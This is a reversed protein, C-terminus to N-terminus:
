LQPRRSAAAALEVRSSLGLKAFVHKVHTAVTHPSIYLRAAIDATNHGDRVLAVVALETPTLSEWGSTARTRRARSGRRVGIARLEAAVRAAHHRAGVREYADLAWEWQPRAAGPDTGSLVAGLDDAVTAELPALGLAAFASRARALRATAQEAVGFCHEAVADYLPSSARAALSAMEAAVTAARAADGRGIAARVLDVAFDPRSSAIGLSELLTWIQDLPAFPDPQANAEALVAQAAATRDFGMLSGAEARAADSADVSLQARALDGRLAFIQAQFALAGPMDPSRVEVDLALGTEFESLADDWEGLLFLRQADLYHYGPLNWALGLREAWRRGRAISQACDDLRGLELLCMARFHEPDYRAAQADGAGGIDVARDAHVAAEAARGQLRLAVSLTIHAFCAASDTAPSGEAVVRAAREAGAMDGNFVLAMAAYADLRRRASPDLPATRAADAEAVAAQGKGMFVLAHVLRVHLAAAIDADPAYELAGRCVTEAESLRGAADLAFALDHAIAAAIPDGPRVLEMAQQLTAAALGPTNVAASAARRLWEVAEHDGPEAAVAFQAAVRGVPAGAVELALAADRHLAARASRPISQYVAERVLDHRFALCDNAETLVGARIAETLNPLLQAAPRGCVAALDTLSLSTGLVSAIRLLDTTADALDALRDLIAQGISPPLEGAAGAGASQARALELMFLPNGAARRAVDTVDVGYGALLAAVDPDPLPGLAIRTPGLRGLAADLETPRPALRATVVIFVPLGALQAPLAALATITAADAWQIDELLLMAPGRAVVEELRELVRARSAYESAVDDLDPTLGASAMAALFPGFPRSRDVADGAGALVPFGRAEAVGAVEAALRTKGIGPEGELLVARVSGAAAEDLTSILAELEEGRGVLSGPGAVV